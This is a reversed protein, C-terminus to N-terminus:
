CSNLILVYMTIHETPSLSDCLPSVVSLFVGSFTVEIDLSFTMWTEAPYSKEKARVALPLIKESPFLSWHWSPCPSVWCLVVNVSIVFRGEFIV